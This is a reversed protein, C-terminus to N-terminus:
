GKLIIDINNTVALDSELTTQSPGLRAAIRHGFANIPKEFYLWLAVSIFCTTVLTGFRWIEASVAPPKIAWAIRNSLYLLIWHSLYISYSADGLLTVGRWFPRASNFRMNSFGLLGMLAAAPTAWQYGYFASWFLLPMAILPIVFGAWRLKDRFQYVLIGALFDAHVMTFMHGTGTHAFYGILSLAGLLATLWIRGFLPVILAAMVYFIMEHELTWTVAYYREGSSPLLSMGYLIRSWSQDLTVRVINFRDLYHQFLCFAIVLPYIRFARKILFPSLTFKPRATVVCIVYGSIAFFLDVGFFGGHALPPFPYIDAPPFFRLAIYSHFYAVSLAAVARGAQLSENRSEM